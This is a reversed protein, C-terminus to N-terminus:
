QLTLVLSGACVQQTEGCLSFSPIVNRPGTPEVGFNLVIRSGDSSITGVTILPSTTTSYITAPTTVYQGTTWQWIFSASNLTITITGTFPNITYTFSYSYTILGVSPTTTPMTPNYGINALLTGSATGTGNHEFTFYDQHINTSDFWAGDIAYLPVGNPAFGCIATVCSEVGSAAYRGHLFRPAPQAAALTASLIFLAIVSIITLLTLKKINGQM